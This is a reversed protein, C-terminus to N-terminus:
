AILADASTSVERLSETTSTPRGKDGTASGRGGIAARTRGAALDRGLSNHERWKM